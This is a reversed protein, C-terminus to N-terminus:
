KSRHFLPHGVQALGAVEFDITRKARGERVTTKIINLAHRVCEVHIAWSKDDRGYFARAGADVWAPELQGMRYLKFARRLWLAYLSSRWRTWCERAVPSIDQAAGLACLPVLRLELLRTAAVTPRMTLSQAHIRYKHLREAHWVLPRGTALHLIWLFWDQAYRWGGAFRDLIERTVAANVLVSPTNIINHELMIEMASRGELVEPMLGPFDTATLSDGREDINWGPGHIIVADPIRRTVELRKELFGPELVDDAGPHCWYEGKMARLLATTAASVGRNEKWSMIKFRSDASYKQLVSLSSDSSGDDWFLAEFNTYSQAQISQCLDDLFPAANFVPVIISAM